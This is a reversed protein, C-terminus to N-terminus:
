PRRGQPSNGPAAQLDRTADVLPLLASEEVAFSGSLGFSAAGSASGIRFSLIVERGKARLELYTDYTGELRPCLSRDLIFLDLQAVFGALNTLAIDSSAASFGSHGLNVTAEARFSSWDNEPNPVVSVFSKHDASQLKM